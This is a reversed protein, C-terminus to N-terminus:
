CRAEGVLGEYLYSTIQRTGLTYIIQSTITGCGRCIRWRAGFLSQKRTEPTAHIQSTSCQRSLQSPIYYFFIAMPTDSVELNRMSCRDHRSNYGYGYYRFTGVADFSIIIVQEILRTVFLDPGSALGLGADGTDPVRGVSYYIHDKYRKRNWPTVVDQAERLM